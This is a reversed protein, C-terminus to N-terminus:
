EDNPIETRELYPRPNQEASEPESAAPQDTVRFGGIHSVAHIYDTLMQAWVAERSQRPAEKSDTESVPVIAVTMTRRSGDVEVRYGDVVKYGFVRVRTEVMELIESPSFELKLIM